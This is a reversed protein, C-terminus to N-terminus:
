TKLKRQRIVVGLLGATSGIALLAWTSPEPVNSTPTLMYSRGGSLDSNAVIQREANIAVASGLTIGLGPDILSNLDMMYGNTYLFAHSSSYYPPLGTPVDSSGVVQGADNIAFAYSTTGGLTGLDMMQDNSYLFAHTFGGSSSGVAQGANTIGRGDSQSYGPLAGLDKVQGNSYLVAHPPSSGVARSGVIQGTNNIGSAEFAGLDTMQGNTYVFAHEASSGVDLTGVVQGADNIGTAVSRGLASAIGLNIM